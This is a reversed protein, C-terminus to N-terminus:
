AGPLAFLRGGPLQGLKDDVTLGGRWRDGDRYRYQLARLRTGYRETLQAFGPNVHVGIIRGTCYAQTAMPFVLASAVLDAIQIGVHNESHGFTPMELIRGYEDGDLKFKQTFVSHSVAVNTAHNSDAIVLGLDDGDALMAQFFTSISQMSFTHLATGDCPQGLGKVWVRGFIRADYDELLSMLKDLVAIAHRQNRRQQGERLARRLDAGKVEALVWSLRSAGRSRLNPFFTRKLALFERTLHSLSTQDFVVGVVVCVPAIDTRECPVAQTDGSEDVYCVKLAM